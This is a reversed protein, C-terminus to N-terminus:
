RSKLLRQVIKYTKEDMEVPRNGYVLEWVAMMAYRLHKDPDRQTLIHNFHAVTPVEQKPKTM